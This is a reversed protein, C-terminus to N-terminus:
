SEGDNTWEKAEVFRKLWTLYALAETTAYRYTNSDTTLLYELFDNRIGLQSKVWDSVQSYAKKHHDKGKAKLFALSPALGDHQIMAPLGRVLAGYEKKNTPEKEIKEVQNWAHSARQQQLTQQQSM